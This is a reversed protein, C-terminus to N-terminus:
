DLLLPQTIRSSNSFVIVLLHLFIWLNIFRHTMSKLFDNRTRPVIFKELKDRLQQVSETLGDLSFFSIFPDDNIDTSEPPASLSQFSQLFQIHDQTHSLQELEADRRRLDNIEQELRELRGEARSVAAKEKHSEVAERLQQVDKERQQIRQQLTKQTEKLQKHCSKLATILEQPDGECSFVTSLFQIVVLYTVQPMFTTEPWKSFYDVLTVTFSFDAPAMDFDGGKSFNRGYVMPFRYLSSHHLTHVVATKYHFQCTICLKIASEVQADM